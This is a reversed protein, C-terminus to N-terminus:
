GAVQVGDSHLSNLVDATGDAIKQAGAAFLAENEVKHNALLATSLIARAVLPTAAKLKEAGKLNSFAGIADVDAIIGAFVSLDNQVTAQVKALKGQGAQPILVSIIGGVVPIEKSVVALLSTLKSLFKM